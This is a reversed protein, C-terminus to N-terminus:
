GSFANAVIVLDLINVIGDGNLDPTTKGFANAVIVLDLINVIGDSNLDAVKGTSKLYIEGDLDALTHAHGKSGSSVGTTGELFQIQQEQGSRNYAAWGNTFERIFVGDINDYLQAKTEVGGIPRGLPADWFDYWYHEHDSGEGTYFFGTNYLVYGDSHTLTLTTFVRMWRQNTPSNPHETELGFGEVGNIQPHRLNAENWRLTNELHSLDEYNYYRGPERVFEMFCGNILESLSEMKSAGGNVMIIFDDPVRARIESFIHIVAAEMEEESVGLREERNDISVIRGPGGGFNDVMIGDFLGCFAIAIGQRILIKQVEPDVFNIYFNSGESYPIRNGEKDTMWYKPDDSPFLDGPKSAFFDWWYLSVFNPNRAHYYTHIEQPVDERLIIDAGLTNRYFELRSTDGYQISGALLLDHYPVLEPDTLREWYSVGEVWMPSHPQFVSPYIRESLRKELPAKPFEVYECLVDYRFEILNLDLFPTIDEVLTKEINLYRLVPLNLLPSLDRIPNGQLSVAVLNSLNELTTVDVIQNDNLSLEVLETLNILPTIDSIQNIGLHLTKLNTLKELPSIDSIRNASLALQELEVLDALPLLNSIQNGGFHFHLTKLNTLKELPSIDSIRNASLYLNELNILNALPTIDSIRNNHLSISTLNVLNALPQLDEIQNHNTNFQELFIAYELGTLDNIGSNDAELNALHKLHEKTLPTHDHLGIEERLTERIAMRLNPDPLWDEAFLPSNIITVSILVFAVFCNRIKM